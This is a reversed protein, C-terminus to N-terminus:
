RHAPSSRTTDRRGRWGPTSMDSCRSISARKMGRRNASAPVSRRRIHVARHLRCLARVAFLAVRVQARPRPGAVPVAPRPDRNRGDPLSVRRDPQPAAVGLAAIAFGLSMSWRRRALLTQLNPACWAIAFGMAMVLATYITALQLDLGSRTYTAASFLPAWEPIASRASIGASGFMVQVIHLADHISSARFFVWAVITFLMTLAWGLWRPFTWDARDM